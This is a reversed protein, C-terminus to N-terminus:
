RCDVLSVRAEVNQACINSISARLRGADLDISPFIESSPLFTTSIGSRGSPIVEPFLPAQIVSEFASDRFMNAQILAGTWAQDCMWCSLANVVCLDCYVGGALDVADPELRICDVISTAAKRRAESFSILDAEDWDESGTSCVTVAADARLLVKTSFSRHLRTRCVAFTVTGLVLNHLAAGDQLDGAYMGPRKRVKAVDDLKESWRRYM